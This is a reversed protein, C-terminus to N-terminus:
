AELGKVLEEDHVRVDGDVVEYEGRVLARMWRVQPEQRLEQPGGHTRYQDAMAMKLWNLQRQQREMKDAIASLRSISKGRLNRAPKNSLRNDRSHLLRFQIGEPGEEEVWLKHVLDNRETISSKVARLLAKADDHIEFLKADETLQKSCATLLRKIDGMDQQGVAASWDNDLARKLTCTADEVMASLAAVVGTLYYRQQRATLNDPLDM